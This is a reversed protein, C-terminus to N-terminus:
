LAGEIAHAVDIACETDDLVDMWAPPEDLVGAAHEAGERHHLPVRPVRDRIALVAIGPHLGGVDPGVSGPPVGLWPTRRACGAM